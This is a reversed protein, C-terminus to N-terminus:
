KRPQQINVHTKVNIAKEPKFAHAVNAAEPSYDVHGKIPAGSVTGSSVTPATTLGTCDEQDKAPRENTTTKHQVIRM